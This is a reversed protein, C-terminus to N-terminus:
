FVSDLTVSGDRPWSSQSTEVYIIELEFCGIIPLFHKIMGTTYVLFSLSWPTSWPGCTYCNPELRLCLATLNRHDTSKIATYDSLLLILCHKAIPFEGKPPM